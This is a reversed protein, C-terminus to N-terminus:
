LHRRGMHQLRRPTHTNRTSLSSLTHTTLLHSLYVPEPRTQIPQENYYQLITTTLGFGRHRLYSPPCPQTTSQVFPSLVFCPFPCLLICPPEHQSFQLSPKHGQSNAPAPAPRQRLLLLQCHSVSLACAGYCEGYGYHILALILTPPVLRFRSIALCHLLFSDLLVAWHGSKKRERLRDSYLLLVRLLAFCVLSPPFPLSLSRASAFALAPTSAPAPYRM